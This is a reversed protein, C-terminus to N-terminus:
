KHDDLYNIRLLMDQPHSKWKKEEHCAAHEQNLVHWPDRFGCLFLLPAQQLWLCSHCRVAKEACHCWTLLVEEPTLVAESSATTDPTPDPPEPDHHPSPTLHQPKSQPILPAEPLFWFFFFPTLKKSGISPNPDLHTSPSWSLDDLVRSDLDLSRHHFFSGVIMLAKQPACICFFFFSSSSFVGRRM